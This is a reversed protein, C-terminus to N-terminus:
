FCIVFVSKGGEFDLMKRAGSAHPGVEATRETTEPTLGPRDKESTKEDETFTEASLIIVSTLM